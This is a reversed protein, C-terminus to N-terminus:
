TSLSRLATLIREIAARAILVVDRMANRTQPSM